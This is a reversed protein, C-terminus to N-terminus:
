YTVRGSRVSNFGDGFASLAEDGDNYGPIQRRLDAVMNQAFENVSVGGDRLQEIAQEIERQTVAGSISSGAVGKVGEAVIDSIVAGLPGTSAGVGAGVGTFIVNSLMAAAEGEGVAEEKIRTLGDELGNLVFGVQAGALSAAALRNVGYKEQFYDDGKAPDQLDGITQAAKDNVFRVLDSAREGPPPSFLTTAFFNEFARQSEGDFVEGNTYTEDPNPALNEEIIADYGNQYLVTLSDKFDARGRYHEAVEEDGLEAAATNFVEAHLRDIDDSSLSGFENYGEYALNFMLTSLGDLAESNKPNSPDFEFDGSAYRELDPPAGYRSEGDMTLRVFEDLTGDARLANLHEAENTSDTNSLVQAAHAALLGAEDSDPADLALNTAADFFMNQMEPSAKDFLDTSIYFPSSASLNESWRGVLREMDRSDFLGEESLRSLADAAIQLDQQQAEAGLRSGYTVSSMDNLLDATREAGLTGFLRQLYAPDDKHEEITQALMEARFVGDSQLTIFAAVEEGTGSHNPIVGHPIDPNDDFGFTNPPPGSITTGVQRGGRLATLAREGTSREDTHVKDSLLHENMRKLLADGNEDDALSLLEADSMGDVFDQAVEDRDDHDIKNLLSRSVAFAEAPDRRAIDRLERSVGAYDLDDRGGNRAVIEDARSRAQTGTLLAAPVPPQAPVDEGTWRARLVSTRFADDFLRGYSAPAEDRRRANEANATQSPRQAERNVVGGTGGDVRTLM